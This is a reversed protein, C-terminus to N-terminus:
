SLKLLKITIDNETPLAKIKITNGSNNRFKFDYSGYAVAADKGSQIYPVKNSHPHRETVNLTPVSLVANYLTTSIQCNGGGLGHKKNGKADFIDAKQYGKSSTAPGVTGCFSFTQGNEVLTDNLTSCTISINKQRNADKTYIKTSFSAIEEENSPSNQNPNSLNQNENNSQSNQLHQDQNTNQEEIKEAKSDNNSNTNLYKNEESKKDVEETNVNNKIAETKTANYNQPNTNTNSIFFYIIFGIIIFAIIYIWYKNKM